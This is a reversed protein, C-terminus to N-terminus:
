VVKSKYHFVAELGNEKNWVFAQSERIHEFGMVSDWEAASTLSPLNRTKIATEEDVIRITQKEKHLHGLHIEIHKANAWHEKAERSMILPLDMNNRQLKHTFGILCTGWSFYKRDSHNNNVGVNHDKCYVADLVCGLYFAKHFDHNGPVIIVQVKSKSKLLNIVEVLFASNESFSEKWNKSDHQPTGKTTMQDKSDSNFFDSGVTLIIKEPNYQKSKQLFHIVAELYDEKKKEYSVDELRDVHHDVIALELLNGTNSLYNLDASPFVPINKIKEMTTDMLAMFVEESATEAEVKELWVKVQYSPNNASGWKNAVQKVIVWENLDIEAFEILDKVTKISASKSLIERADGSIMDEINQQETLDELSKRYRYLARQYSELSINIDLELNALEYSESAQLEKFSKIDKYKIYWEKLPSTNGNSM